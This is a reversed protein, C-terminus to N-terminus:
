GFTLCCSFNLPQLFSDWGVCAKANVLLGHTLFRADGLQPVVVDMFSTNSSPQTHADTDGDIQTATEQRALQAKYKLRAEHGLKSCQALTRQGEVHM